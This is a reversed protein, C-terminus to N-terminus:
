GLDGPRCLDEATLGETLGALLRKLDGSDAPAPSVSEMPILVHQSMRVTYEISDSSYLGATVGRKTLTQDKTNHKM